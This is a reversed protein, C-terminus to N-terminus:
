GLTDYKELIYSNESKLHILLADAHLKDNQHFPQAKIIKMECRPSKYRGDISYDGYFCCTCSTNQRLIALFSDEYKPLIYTVEAYDGKKVVNLNRNLVSRKETQDPVDFDYEPTQSDLTYSVGNIILVPDKKDFMIM